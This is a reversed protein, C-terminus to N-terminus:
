LHHGKSGEGGEAGWTVAIGGERRKLRINNKRWKANQSTGTDRREVWCLASHDAVGERPHTHLARKHTDHTHAMEELATEGM